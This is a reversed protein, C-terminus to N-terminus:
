INLYNSFFKKKNKSSDKMSNNGGASQNKLPQPALSNAFIEQYDKDNTEPRYSLSTELDTEGLDKELIKKIKEDVNNGGGGGKKSEESDSSSDSLTKTAKTMPTDQSNKDAFNNPHYNATLQPKKESNESNKNNLGTSNKSLQDKNIIELIKDNLNKDDNKDEYGGIQIDKKQSEKLDKNILKQINREEADSINKDFDNLQDPELEEGLYIELIQKLPLLKRIAEKISEKILGITDRQNRKLEIPPYLHYMLYPNNWLERAVEIYVKHIFEQIQINKYFNPDIKNINKLNPSYTLVIMNAKLTAKVLDPLWAYSKSNNMIRDSEQKIMEISWKPIRRLFSQFVKLVNDANNSVKLAEAYISNLGEYILPTLVNVLQTTYEQKTEVFFNIM